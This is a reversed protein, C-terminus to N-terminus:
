LSSSFAWVAPSCSLNLKPFNSYPLEAESLWYTFSTVTQTVISAQNWHIDQPLNTQVNRGFIYNKTCCWCLACFRCSFGPSHLPTTVSMLDKGISCWDPTRAKHWLALMTHIAQMERGSAYSNWNITLLISKVTHFHVVLVCNRKPWFEQFGMDTLLEWM